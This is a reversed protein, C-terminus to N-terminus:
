AFNRGKSPLHRAGEKKPTRRLPTVTVLVSALFRSKKQFLSVGGVGQLPWRGEFPLIELIASCICNVQLIPHPDNRWLTYVTGIPMGGTFSPMMALDWFFDLLSTRLGLASFAGFCFADLGEDLVAATPM